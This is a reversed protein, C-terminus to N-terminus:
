TCRGGAPLGAAGAGGAADRPHGARLDGRGVLLADGSGGPYLADRGVAAGAGDGAVPGVPQQGPGGGPRPAGAAQSIMGRLSPEILGSSVGFLVVGLYVFAPTPVFVIASISLYALIACGLGAVTLTTESFRKLLRGSLVGQMLIDLGGVILFLYSIRDPTWGLSDILLVAWNSQLM